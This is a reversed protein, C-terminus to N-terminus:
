PNPLEETLTKKLGEEFTIPQFGLLKKAKSIDFGTKLPRRAAGAHPQFTDSTVREIRSHDYGLFDAVALAIQYPTFVEEGSIHYIGRAKKEVIKSIGDALDEVYTPTRIQDDFIKLRKENKLGNAVATVINERGSFNKGYVLVTRVIAWDDLFKKVEEEALLKTEGYYNVPNPLDDERYLGKEGDFVFDTSLLIFFCRSKQAEQLLNITGQVNVQYALDRNHECDDPKSLAGSHVVADPNFKRFVEKVDPLSTFDLSRYTFIQYDFNIRSEGKGTAFVQYGSELLQKVTYYGM